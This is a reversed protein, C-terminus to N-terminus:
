PARQSGDLSIFPLPATSGWFTPMKGDWTGMARWQLIAPTLSKAIQANAAAQADAKLVTAQAEGRAQEIAAQAQGKAQAIQADAAAEAEVVRERSSVRKQELEYQAQQARQQAVQKLEIAKSFEPSFSFNTINVAAVTVHLPALTRRLATLAQEAVQDRKTILEEADFHATVAKITNAIAPAILRDLIQEITGISQYLQPAATDDISWNTAVTTHVDQLDHSAASETTEAKQLRVDMQVIHQVIPTVVHLGPSLAQPDAAGFNLLVGRYGASIIVFPEFLVILLLVVLSAIAWIIFRTSL